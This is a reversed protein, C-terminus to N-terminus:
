AAPKTLSDSFAKISAVRVLTRTGLKVTELHGANILEYTKSRGIGLAKAADIISINIPEM